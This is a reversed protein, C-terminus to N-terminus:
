RLTIILREVALISRRFSTNQRELHSSLFALLEDFSRISMPTYNFFKDEYARLDNYLIGFQGRGRRQAIILYIWFRHKRRRRNDEEEEDILAAVAAMIVASGVYQMALM